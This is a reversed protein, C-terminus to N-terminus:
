LITLTHKLKQSHLLFIYTLCLCRERFDLIKSAVKESIAYECAANLIEVTRRKGSIMYDNIFEVSMIFANKCKLDSFFYFM